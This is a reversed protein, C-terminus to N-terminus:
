EGRPVRRVDIEAPGGQRAQRAQLRITLLEIRRLLHVAVDGSIENGPNRTKQGVVLGALVGVAAGVAAATGPSTRRVRERVSDNAATIGRRSDGGRSNPKTLETTETTM